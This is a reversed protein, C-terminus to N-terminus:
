IHGVFDFQRPLADTEYDTYWLLPIQLDHTRDEGSATNKIESNTKVAISNLSQFNQNKSVKLIKTTLHFSIINFNSNQYGALKLDIMVCHQLGM